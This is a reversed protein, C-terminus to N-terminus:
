LAALFAPLKSPVKGRKKQRSVMQRSPAQYEPFANQRSFHDGVDHLDAGELPISSSSSM